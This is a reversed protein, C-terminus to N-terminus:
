SRADESRELRDLLAEEREDAVTDALTLGEYNTTEDLSVKHKRDWSRTWDLYVNKLVTMYWSELSQAPEYRAAKDIFKVFAKQVLEKADEQNGCLSFAFGYAHDGFEDVFRELADRELM